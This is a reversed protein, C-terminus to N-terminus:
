RGQSKLVYDVLLEIDGQPLKHSFAPMNETGGQIRRYLAGRERRAVLVSRSLDLAPSLGVRRPDGRGNEGHCRVCHEQWLSEASEGSRPPGCAIALLLAAPALARM